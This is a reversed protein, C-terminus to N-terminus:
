QMEEHKSRFRADDYLTKSEHYIVIKSLINKLLNQLNKKLFGIQITSISDLFRIKFTKM